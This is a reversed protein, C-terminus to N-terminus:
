HAPFSALASSLRKMIKPTLFSSLLFKPITLWDLPFQHNGWTPVISLPGFTMRTTHISCIARLCVLVHVIYIMASAHKNNRCLCAFQPPEWVFTLLTTHSNQHVSKIVHSTLALRSAIILWICAFSIIQGRSSPRFVRTLHPPHILCSHRLIFIIHREPPPGLVWM